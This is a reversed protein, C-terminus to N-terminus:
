LEFALRRIGGLGTVRLGEGRAVLSSEFRAKTTLRDTPAPYIVAEVEPSSLLGVKNRDKPRGAQSDPKVAIGM